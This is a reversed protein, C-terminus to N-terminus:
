AWGQRADHWWHAPLPWPTFVARNWEGLERWLHPWPTGALTRVDEQGALVLMPRPENSLVAGLPGALSLQQSRVTRRGGQPPLVVAHPAIKRNAYLGQYCALAEGQLFLVRIDRAEGNVGHRLLAEVGWREQEALPQVAARYAPAAAPRHEDLFRGMFREWDCLETGLSLERAQVCRLEGRLQGAIREFFVRLSTASEEGDACLDAYVFLDCLHHLKVMPEWDGGGGPCFCTTSAKQKTLTEVDCWDPPTSLASDLDFDAM